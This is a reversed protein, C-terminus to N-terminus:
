SVKGATKSDGTEHINVGGEAISIYESDFARVKRIAESLNAAYVCASRSHRKDIDGSVYRQYYYTITFRALSM